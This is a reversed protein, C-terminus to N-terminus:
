NTCVNTCYKCYLGRRRSTGKKCSVGGVQAELAKVYELVSGLM